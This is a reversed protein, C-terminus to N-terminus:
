QRYVVKGPILHFAKVTEAPIFTILAGVGAGLLGSAVSTRADNSKSTSIGFWLGGAVAGSVLIIRAVRRSNDMRVSAVDSRRIQFSRDSIWPISEDCFLYDDTEGAYQCHVSYHGNRKVTIEDGRALDGV